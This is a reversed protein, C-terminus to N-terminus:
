TQNASTKQYLWKAMIMMLILFTGIYIPLMRYSILEALFGFLPSMLMYGTYAVTMQVGIISQANHKGFNSPTEHILSPFIPACGLGILFLALMLFSTPIPLVLMVIGAGILYSGLNILQKHSLRTTLFGAAFRGVTIGGFYLAVWLAATEESLNRVIVLYSSSWLGVTSEITTFCFFLFLSQKVGSLSLIQKLSLGKESEGSIEPSLNAVQRWLKSMAIFLIIFAVFILGMFRYGGQWGSQRLLFFSMIVPGISAGVSWFAHLWSMHKAEYKLAVVSNLSADIYGLGLGLPVSWLCLHILHTSFSYGVLSAAIAVLSILILKGTGMKRLMKDCTFTAFITAGSVIMSVIGANASSTRLDEHIVPWASGLVNPLGIM